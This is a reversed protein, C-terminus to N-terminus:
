SVVPVHADVMEWLLTFVEGQMVSYQNDKRPRMALAEWTTEEPTWQDELGYCSCHGGHVEYLKGDRQFLVFADGEYGDIDYAALLVEDDTAMGDVPAPERGSYGYSRFSEDMEEHESWIGFYKSM